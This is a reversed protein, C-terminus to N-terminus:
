ERSQGWAGFFRWEEPRLLFTGTIRHNACHWLPFILELLVLDFVRKVKSM